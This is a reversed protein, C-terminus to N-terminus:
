QTAGIHASSSGAPDSSVRQRAFWFQIITGLAGTIVGLLAIVMDHYEGPVKVHGLLFLWLVYFYGVIFVVSLCAQFYATLKHSLSKLM